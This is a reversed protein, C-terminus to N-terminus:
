PERDTLRTSSRPGLKIRMARHPIGAETFVRGYATFGYREYFGLAHTQAHLIVTGLGEKRAIEILLDLISRGVGMRRYERLVAMRGIRGELLLRGTGIPTGEDNLAIVHYGSEDHSDWEEAEPVQQEEIFVARRIACLEERNAQWNVPRVVFSPNAMVTMIIM